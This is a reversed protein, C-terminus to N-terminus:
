NSWHTLYFDQLFDITRQINYPSEAVVAAYSERNEVNNKAASLIADAWKEYSEALSHFTMRDGISAEKPVGDSAVVPLGACQAEIAVIGLGEFLSPFAFVDMACYYPSVDKHQGAFLVANELGKEQVLTRISDMREGDGLLLLKANPVRRHLEEFVPILFIHNKADDFRGVHGLLLTEDEVQLEARCNDRKTKDFAFRDVNIGNAVIRFPIHEGFLDKGADDSCAFAHTLMKRCIAKAVAQYTRYALGGKAGAVHSHCIRVPIGVRKAQSLAFVNDRNMHTHVIKYEPHESFFARLEKLYNAVGGHRPGHVMYMRGGLSLIEDTFKAEIRNHCLFDFQIKSRDINRYISMLLTEVGGYDMTSVVHLIRIPDNRECKM